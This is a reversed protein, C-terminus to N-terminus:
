KLKKGKQFTKLLFWKWFKKRAVIQQTQTKRSAWQGSEMYNDLVHSGEDFETQDAFEMMQMFIEVIMFERWNFSFNLCLVQLAVLITLKM